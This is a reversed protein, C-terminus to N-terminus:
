RGISHYLPNGNKGRYRTVNYLSERTEKGDVGETDLKTKPCALLRAVFHVVM